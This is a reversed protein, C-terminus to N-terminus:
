SCSAYIFKHTTQKLYEKNLKNLALPFSVTEAGCLPLFVHLTNVHGGGAGAWADNVGFGEATEYTIVQKLFVYKIVVM